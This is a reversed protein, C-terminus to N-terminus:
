VQTGPAVVGYEDKWWRARRVDEPDTVVTPDQGLDHPTPGIRDALPRLAHVDFGYVRAATEGLLKRADDVPVDHFDSRLRAVTNPWTGEPHPYDTGWMAVDCGIVHRRRIEEKSMTSAGIFINTGFYDSPLKSLKGEMLAAMKKTTHGGGFYQDWKWMMDAAWYAAGETVVFKLKPFREFVGSFLLHAIPRHTWWVVEALYIGIHDGYEDRAAEGSHVHVPLDAAECAAWVKDYIPDNYPTRHHWMTPIMIGRLGPRPAVWEIEDVARDVDHCIPVLAIGGRRSPNHSCLEELFLNHAHAGAFALDPDLIEGASLGAGFPPSEMGTIADSDAFLVEAAVGDADLEKDRQQADYAGRLGEEHETEWHTIYDYNLKMQEGRRAEREALFEDFQTHYKAELYPRYQECPLGAHCDSSIILYREGGPETSGDITGM